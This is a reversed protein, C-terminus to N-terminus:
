DHCEQIVVKGQSPASTPGPSGTTLIFCEPTSKTAIAIGSIPVWGPEMILLRYLTMNMIETTEFGDPPSVLVHTGCRHQYQTVVHFYNEVCAWVMAIGDQWTGICNHPDYGVDSVFVPSVIEVGYVTGHTKISPDEMVSWMSYDVVIENLKSDIEAAENM